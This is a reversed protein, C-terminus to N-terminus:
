RKLSLFGTKTELGNQFEIKYYYTGSPLDKGNNSKGTFVKDTNNYNSVEFVIDGWRNYITVTNTRTDDNSEINEIKFFDNMNNGDPSVANYIVLEEGECGPPPQAAISLKQVFFVGSTLEIENCLDPDFDLPAAFRGATFLNGADDSTIIRYSNSNAEAKVVSVFNGDTDLTSIFAAGDPADLTFEGAGPNFDGTGQFHGYTHIGSTGLTLTILQDEYTDSGWSKAWVFEGNTDLKLLFFDDYLTTLIFEGTGPDADLTSEYVGTGYINGTADTKIKMSLEDNPGGISKAWIFNGDQDLKLIFMDRLGASTMNATGAGPDFDATGQFVGSLFVNGGADLSLSHAFEHDTGGIRQTWVYAGTADLKSIFIDWQGLATIDFSGVGPNFDVTGKFHGTAYVNQSADVFIASAMQGFGGPTSAAWVFNGDADLKCFFNDEFSGIKTLEFTGPGPDFDVTGDFSGTIYINGDADTTIDTTYCDHTNSFSKAWLLNGDSDLKLIYPSENDYATGTLNFVSSGPDFDVTNYFRGTTIIHGQNDATIASVWDGNFMNGFGKAWEYVPTEQALIKSISILFISTFLLKKM